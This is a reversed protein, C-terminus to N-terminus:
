RVTVDCTAESPYYLVVRRMRQRVNVSLGPLDAATRCM